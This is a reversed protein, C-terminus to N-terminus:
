SVVVEFNFCFNDSNAGKRVAPFISNAVLKKSCNGTCTGTSIPNWHLLLYLLVARYVQRNSTSLRMM